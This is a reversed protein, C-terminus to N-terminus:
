EGLTPGVEIRGNRGSRGRNSWPGIAVGWEGRYKIREVSGAPILPHALWSGGAVEDQEKSITLVIGTVHVETFGYVHALTRMNGNVNEVATPTKMTRLPVLGHGIQGM